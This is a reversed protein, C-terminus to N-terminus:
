QIGSNSHEFTPRQYIEARAADDPETKQFWNNEEPRREEQWTRRRQGVQLNWTSGGLTYDRKSLLHFQFIRNVQYDLMIEWLLYVAAIKKLAPWKKFMM